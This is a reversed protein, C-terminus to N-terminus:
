FCNIIETVNKLYTAGTTIKTQLLDDFIIIYKGRFYKKLEVVKNKNIIISKSVRIFYSPLKVELEKLSYDTCLRKGSQDYFDAFKDSAEFYLVEDLKVLKIGDGIKVPMTTIEDKPLFTELNVLLDNLKPTTKQKELKSITLELREKEVPKLLYDFSYTEFAKL